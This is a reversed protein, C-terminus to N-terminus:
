RVRDAPARIFQLLARGMDSVPQILRGSGPQAYPRSGDALTLGWGHLELWTEKILEPDNGFDPLLASVVAEITAGLSLLKPDKSESHQAAANLVLIHLTSLTVVHRLLKTRRAEARIGEQSDDLCTNLLANRLRAIKEDDHTEMTARTTVVLVDIFDPNDALGRVDVLGRGELEDLRAALSSLWEERRTELPPTVVLQFLESVASGAFPIAGLAGKTLAHLVDASSRSPQKPTEANDTM